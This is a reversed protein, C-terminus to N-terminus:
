GIIFGSGSTLKSLINIYEISQHIKAEDISTEVFSLKDFVIRENTQGNWKEIIALNAKKYFCFAKLEAFKAENEAKEVVILAHSNVLKSIENINLDSINSIFLIDSKQNESSFRLQLSQSSIARKLLEIKESHLGNSGICLKKQTTKAFVSNPLITSIALLGAVDYIFRRRNLNSKTAKM